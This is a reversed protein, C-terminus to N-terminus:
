STQVPPKQRPTADQDDVVSIHSTAIPWDRSGIGVSIGILTAHEVATFFVLHELVERGRLLHAGGNYRCAAFCRPRVLMPRSLNRIVLLTFLLRARSLGFTGKGQRRFGFNLRPAAEANCRSTDRNCKLPEADDAM